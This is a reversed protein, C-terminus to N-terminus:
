TRAFGVAFSTSGTGTVDWTARLYRRVTGAITIRESTLGTATTFTGITAWGSSGTASDEVTVIVNTLGSFGVVHLHAIGGTSSSAGGDYASGSGDATEATVLDHLSAGFSVPGDAQAALDFTNLGNTSAGLELSSLVAKYMWLEDGLTLGNPGYTVARDTASGIWPSLDSHETVDYFGSVTLNSESIGPVFVKATIDAFSTDHFTTADLMAVAAGEKVQTAYASLALDGVLLRTKQAATYAM